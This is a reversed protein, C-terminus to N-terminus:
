NTKPLVPTPVILTPRARQANALNAALDARAYFDLMASAAFMEAQMANERKVEIGGDTKFTIIIKARVGDTAEGNPQDTSM